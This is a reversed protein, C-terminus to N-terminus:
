SKESEWLVEGHSYVLFATNIKAKIGQGSGLIKSKGLSSVM